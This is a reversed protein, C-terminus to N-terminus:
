AEQVITSRLGIKQLRKIVFLADEVNTNSLIMYLRGDERLGIYDSERIISGVKLSLPKLSGPGEVRLMSFESQANEQAEKKSRLIRNFSENNLIFTDEIYREQHVAQMYRYAISLSSTILGIVIKFLNEYYLSLYEFKVRYIMIIAVVRNKDIIPAALIPLHDDLARNVWITKDTVMRKFPAEDDLKVSKSLVNKMKGSKAVLRLYDGSNSVTYILVGKAKMVQELVGVAATFINEPELSDLKSTIGFIKGFSDESSAIQEQLINKIRRNEEYMRHLFDYEDKVKELEGSKSKVEFNKKDIVYGVGIGILFFNSIYLLSNIDYLFSTIDKGANLLTFVYLITSLAVAVTAQRLGHTVGMLVIYMLSFDFSIGRPYYRTLNNLVYVLGFLAINEIYPFIRMFLATILSKAPNLGEERKEKKISEVAGYTLYWDYTKQLGERLSHMPVWDLEQKAKANELQFYRHDGKKEEKYIIDKIPCIDKVIEVLENMVTGTNSSLNMVESSTPDISRFIAEAVDGVYIFDGAQEGDGFVTLKKHQLADEFLASVVGGEGSTDQRPGYVDSLRFCVTDLDYLEKWKRCYYEGVYKSIGYFSVPDIDDEERLPRSDNVGYVAASSAFIFKKVGYQRSLNLMNTLGLLNIKFDMHPDTISKEVNVQPALHIVLDFRNSRFIEECEKDEVDFKYFVHKCKVSEKNGTSLNDIVYVDHGEKQFREVVHSGIFGYGGTVLIRM